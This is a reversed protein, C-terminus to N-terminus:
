LEVHKVGSVAMVCTIFSFGYPILLIQLVSVWVLGIGNTDAGYRTDQLLAVARCRLGFVTTIDAM